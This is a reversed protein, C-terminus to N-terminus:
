AKEPASIKKRAKKAAREAARRQERATGVVM